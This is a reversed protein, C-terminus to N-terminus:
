FCNNCFTLFLTRGKEGREFYKIGEREKSKQWKLATLRNRFKVVAINLNEIRRIVKLEDDDNEGGEVRDYKLVSQKSREGAENREFQIIFQNKLSEEYDKVTDNTTSSDEITKTNVVTTPDDALGRQFSLCVALLVFVLSASKPMM